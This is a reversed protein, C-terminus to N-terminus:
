GDIGLRRIKIALGNRSVGLLRAALARNGEARELARRVLEAELTRMRGALDLSESAGQAVPPRAPAAPLAVLASDLTGGEPCSEVLRRVAHELERVNGPWDWAVLRELAGTTVGRVSRGAEAAFRRLLSEVLAPIDERRDRLPPVQLVHGALRYYLDRRFQGAEMRQALDANTAAVVRCDV